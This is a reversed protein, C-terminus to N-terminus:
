KEPPTYIPQDPAKNTIITDKPTKKNGNFIGMLDFGFYKLSNLLIMAAGFEDLNGLFPINDPLLEFFGATPNILYIISLLALGGLAINKAPTREGKSFDTNAIKKFIM